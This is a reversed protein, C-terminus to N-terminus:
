PRTRGPTPTPAGSLAKWYKSGSYVSGIAIHVLGPLGDLFGGRLFYFRVFRVLPSGVASILNRAMGRARLQEAQLATYRSQKALYSGLTEASDHLLEGELRLPPADSVVREHVPDSSWDAHDRRFLRLTWDPYGEGHRLWRGMFRNCRCLEYAFARPAAAMERQISARLAATVQEDADISLVWDHRAQAVAYRKQPGFGLWEQHLVRAGRRAAIDRTADTSGSDVVLIEDAFRLSELCAEICREANLTIVVASLPVTL